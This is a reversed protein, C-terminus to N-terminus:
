YSVQQSHSQTSLVARVKLVSERGCACPDQVFGLLKQWSQLAQQLHDPSKKPACIVQTGKKQPMKRSTQRGARGSQPSVNKVALILHPRSM